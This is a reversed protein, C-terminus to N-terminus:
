HKSLGLVSLSATLQLAELRGGFGGALRVHARRRELYERVSYRPWAPFTGDALQRARLQAHLATWGDRQDGVLREAENRLADMGEAAALAPDRLYWVVFGATGPVDTELRRLLDVPSELACYEHPLLLEVVSWAKAAMEAFHEVPSKAAYQEEAPAPSGPMLRAVIEPNEFELLHAREHLEVAALSDSAVSLAVGITGTDQFAVGALDGLEDYFVTGGPGEPLLRDVLPNHDRLCWATADPEGAAALRRRADVIPEAIFFTSIVLLVAIKVPLSLRPPFRMLMERKNIRCGFRRAHVIAGCGMPIM